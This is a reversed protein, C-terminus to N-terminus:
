AARNNSNLKRILIKQQELPVKVWNLNLGYIYNNFASLCMYSDSNSLAMNKYNVLTRKEKYADDFFSIINDLEETLTIGTNSVKYDLSNFFDLIDLQEKYGENILQNRLYLSNSNTEKITAVRNLFEINFLNDFGIANLSIKEKRISSPTSQRITNVLSGYLYDIVENSDKPPLPLNYSVYFENDEYKKTNVTISDVAVNSYNVNKRIFNTIVRPNQLAKEDKIVSKLNTKGVIIDSESIGNKLANLQNDRRKINEEKFDVLINTTVDNLLLPLVIM